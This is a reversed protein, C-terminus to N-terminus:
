AQNGGIRETFHSVSHPHLLESEVKGSEINAADPATEEALSCDCREEPDLYAGCYSCRRYNLM